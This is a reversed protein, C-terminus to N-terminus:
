ELTDNDDPGVFSGDPRQIVAVVVEPNNEVLWRPENGVLLARFTREMRWATRGDREVLEVAAMGTILTANMKTETEHNREVPSLLGSKRQRTLDKKVPRAKRWQVVARCIGRQWGVSRHRSSGM